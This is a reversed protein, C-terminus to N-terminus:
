MLRRAKLGNSHPVTGYGEKFAESANAVSESLLPDGWIVNSFGVLGTVQRTREDILVNNPDCVDMCVLQPRTVEQLFHSHSGIWDRISQYHITLMMDEADRLISELLALFCECWSKHGKNSFVRNTLGFQAAPISTLGRVYAGLTRDIAKRQSESLYPAMESLRRGPLHTKLLFPVGLADGKRDYKLVRPVSLQTHSRVLGLVKAETELGHHEHRLLYTNHIPPCKLVLPSGEALRTLYVQYLRGQLREVQHVTIRPNHQITRIVKQISSFDPAASTSLPPPTSPSRTARSGQRGQSMTAVPYVAVDLPPLHMNNYM